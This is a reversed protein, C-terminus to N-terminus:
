EYMFDNFVKKQAIKKGAKLYKKNYMLASIISKPIALKEELNGYIQWIIKWRKDYFVSM